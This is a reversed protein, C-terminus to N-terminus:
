AMMGTKSSFYPPTRWKLAHGTARNEELIRLEAVVMDSRFVFDVYRVIHIEVLVEGGVDTVSQELFYRFFNRNM